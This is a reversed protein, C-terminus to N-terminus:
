AFTGERETVSDVGGGGPGFGAYIQLSFLTWLATSRDLARTDQGDDQQNGRAVNIVSEDSLFLYKAHQSM